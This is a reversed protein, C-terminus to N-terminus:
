TYTCISQTQRTGLGEQTEVRKFCWTQNPEPTQSAIVIPPGPKDSGHRAMELNLDSKPVFFRDDCIPCSNFIHHPSFLYRYTTPDQEDPFLAWPIPFEVGIANAGLILKRYSLYTGFFVNKIAYYNGNGM